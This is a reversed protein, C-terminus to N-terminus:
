FSLTLSLSYVRGRWDGYAEVGTGSPNDPFKPLKAGFVNNIRLQATLEARM